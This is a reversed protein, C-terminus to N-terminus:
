SYAPLFLPFDVSTKGESGPGPFTVQLIHLINCLFSM